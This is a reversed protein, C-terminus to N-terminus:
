RIVQTLNEPRVAFRPDETVIMRVGGVGDPEFGLSRVVTGGLSDQYSADIFVTRGSEVALDQATKQLEEFTGGHAQYFSENPVDYVHAEIPSAAAAEVAEAAPASSLAQQHALAANAEAASQAQAINAARTIEREAEVSNRATEAPANATDSAQADPQTRVEPKAAETSAPADETGQTQAGDTDVSGAPMAEASGVQARVEPSASEPASTDEVTQAPSADPSAPPAEVGDRIQGQLNMKDLDDVARGYEGDENILTRWEGEGVKQFQVEGDHFRISDGDHMITSFQGADQFGLALTAPDEGTMLNIHGDKEGLLRYLTQVAPPATDADPYEQLLDRGFHGVLQDANNIDGGVALNVDKVEPAEAVASVGGSTEAGAGGGFHPTNEALLHGAEMGGLVAAGLRAYRAQLDIRSQANLAHRRGVSVAGLNSADGLNGLGARQAVKADAKKKTGFLWHTGRVAKDGVLGFLGAISAGAFAAETKSGSKAKLAGIATLVSAAGLVLPFGVTAGGAVAIISGSLLASSALVRVWQAKSKYKDFAKGLWGKERSDLGEKRARVEAEEAGLVVEKAVFRRQYRELVKDKDLKIRNPNDIGRDNHRVEASSNLYSAYDARDKVWADRLAQVEPPHNRQGAINEGIVGLTNRSKQHARLADLFAKESTLMKEALPASHKYFEKSTRLGTGLEKELRDMAEPGRNGLALARIRARQEDIADKGEKKEAPAAESAEGEEKAQEKVPEAEAPTSLSSLEEVGNKLEERLEASTKETKKGGELERIEDEIELVEGELGSRERSAGRYKSDSSRQGETELKSLRERLEQIRGAT